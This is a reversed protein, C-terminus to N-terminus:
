SKSKSKKKSFESNAKIIKKERRQKKRKSANYYPQHNARFTYDELFDDNDLNGSSQHYITDLNYKLLGSGQQLQFDERKM